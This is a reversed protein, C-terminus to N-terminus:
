PAILETERAGLLESIAAAEASVIRGYEHSTQEDIRYTPGLLNLAAAVGGPWRIPAAIATIDPELHDREALYGTAPVDGDLAAGVALSYLSGSCAALMPLKTTALSTQSVGSM